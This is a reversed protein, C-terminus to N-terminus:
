LYLNIIQIQNINFENQMICRFFIIPLILDYHAQNHCSRVLESYVISLFEDKVRKIYRSCLGAGFNSKQYCTIIKNILEKNININRSLIKEYRWALRTERVASAACDQIMKEIIDFSTQADIVCDRLEKESMNEILKAM